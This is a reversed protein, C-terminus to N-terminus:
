RTEQHSSFFARSAVAPLIAAAILGAFRRAIGEIRVAASNAYLRILVLVLL